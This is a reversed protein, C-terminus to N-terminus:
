FAIGQRESLRVLAIALVLSIAEYVAFAYWISERGFIAPMLLIAASAFVIGRFINLALAEKTRKTSYLYMSIVMNLSMIVFGTAYKPMVRLTFALTDGSIGFLKCVPASVFLLAMNVLLSGIFNIILSAYFYFKLDKENAEGYAHGVMPQIGESVGMFVALSFSAVYGIVSYSNIGIEGIYSILVYNMCITTVPMAFQSVAEPLGRLFIKKILTMQLRCKRFKLKGKHGIFHSLVILFALAQSLGTAAAAGAVGMQLPFVFLWDLFINMLSSVVTAVMVLMPSGDTRCFAQFLTNLSSPLIFISYWFLYDSVYGLYTETTGLLKAIGSPFPASAATLVMGLTLMVGFAHMFVDGAGEDDHRGLRIAVVSVSGITILMYLANIVMVFPLCLNVAGLATEGIGRGVFIGDIITFLFFCIQGFVSPVIYAILNKTRQKM